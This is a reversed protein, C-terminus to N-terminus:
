AEPFSCVNVRNGAIDVFDFWSMAGNKNIPTVERGDEALADHLAEIDPAFFNFAVYHQERMQEVPILTLATSRAGEGAIRLGIHGASRFIEAMGFMREYWAAAAVTDVAPVFITDIRSILPM